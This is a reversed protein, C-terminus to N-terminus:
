SIACFFNNVTTTTDAIISLPFIMQSTSLDEQLGYCSPSYVHEKNIERFRWDDLVALGQDNMDGTAGVVVHMTQPNINNTAKVEVLHDVVNVNRLAMSSDHTSEDDGVNVILDPQGVADLWVPVDPHDVTWVVLIQQHNGTRDRVGHVKEIVHLLDM